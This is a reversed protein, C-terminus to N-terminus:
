LSFFIFYEFFIRINRSYSDRFSWRGYCYVIYSITGYSTSYQYDDHYVYLVLRCTFLLILYLLSYFENLSPALVFYFKTIVNLLLIFFTFILITIKYMSPKQCFIHVFLCFLYNLVGVSDLFQIVYLKVHTKLKITVFFPIFVFLLSFFFAVFPFLWVITTLLLILSLSISIFAKRNYILIYFLLM